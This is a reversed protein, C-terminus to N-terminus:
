NFFCIMEEIDFVLFENGIEIMLDCVCLNVMGLFLILCSIVVLILNDFMYKLFFCMVEYIIEDYILYYDDLVVYCEGYYDVM